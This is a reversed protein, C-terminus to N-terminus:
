ITYWVGDGIQIFEFVEIPEFVGIDSMEDFHDGFLFSFVQGLSNDGEIADESGFLVEETSLDDFQYEGDGGSYIGLFSEISQM